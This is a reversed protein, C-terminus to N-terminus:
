RVIKGSWDSTKNEMADTGNISAKITANAGDYEVTVVVVDTSSLDKGITAYTFGNKFTMNAADGGSSWWGGMEHVDTMVPNVWTDARLFNGYMGSADTFRLAWTNFNGSGKSKQTFTYSVKEGSAIEVPYAYNLHWASQKTNDVLSGDNEFESALLETDGKKVSTVTLVNEGGLAVECKTTVPDGTSLVEDVEMDDCSVCLLALPPLLAALLLGRLINKRM